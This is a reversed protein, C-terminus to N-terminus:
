SEKKKFLDNINFDSFYMWIIAILIIVFACCEFKHAEFLNLVVDIYNDNQPNDKQPRDQQPRAQQPRAQQPRAQQPGGQQPGGQQPIQQPMQQQPIQQPMQQNM